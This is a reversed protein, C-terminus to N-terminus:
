HIVGRARAYEYVDYVCVVDVYVRPVCMFVRTTNLKKKKKTKIM